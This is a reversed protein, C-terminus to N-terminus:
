RGGDMCGDRERGGVGGAGTQWAGGSGGGGTVWGEREGKMEWECCFHQTWKAAM